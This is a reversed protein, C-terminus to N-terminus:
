ICYTTDLIINKITYNCAKIDNIYDTRYHLKIYHLWHYQLLLLIFTYYPAFSYWEYLIIFLIMLQSNDIFMMGLM